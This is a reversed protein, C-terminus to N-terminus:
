KNTMSCFLGNDECILHVPVDYETAMLIAYKSKMHADQHDSSSPLTLLKQLRHM